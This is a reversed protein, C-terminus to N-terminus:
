IISVRTHKHGMKGIAKARGIGAFLLEPFKSADLVGRGDYVVANPKVMKPSIKAYEPHDTALMVLDANRLAEGLKNTLTVSSPLEKDSKVYPDHVTVRCGLKLLEKIVDYSPSLRTDSVGGRFALGLVTVKSETSRKNNKSLLRLAEQVCHKPMSSNVQRALTTFSSGAKFKDALQILFQPYIPICAGGVGTGPRHLQCFQQSNAANRAEWFDINLITCMKALENALAINVDRYVGEFIKEMEAAKISSMRIVGKKSIVSYLSVGASLSRPGIGAVIAPYNQEMDVVARGVYIREPSYILGFDVDGKLGSIKEIAPLVVNETTAPPITPNVSIVDGKKLGQAINTTVALVNSLDAKGDQILVPVAIIKFDSLKSAQIADTTAQFRKERIGRRLADNIAKEEMSLSARSAKEVISDLKDVGIVKAGARLWVAVISAGVYGLGYVAVTLEGEKVLKDLNKTSLLNM